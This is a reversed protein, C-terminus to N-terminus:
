IDGSMKRLDNFGRLLKALQDEYQRMGERVKRNQHYEVLLGQFTQGMELLNDERNTRDAAPKAQLEALLEGVGDILGQIKEAAM